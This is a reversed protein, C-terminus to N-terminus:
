WLVKCGFEAIERDRTVVTMDEILAQAALIRDFPDRHPGALLGAKVSHHHEVALHQFGEERIAADFVGIRDRMAPLQGIRVKIAIELGSIASVFIMNSRDTMMTVVGSSLRHPANWWWILTHTDLLYRM